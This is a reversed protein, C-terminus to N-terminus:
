AADDGQMSVGFLVLLTKLHRDWFERQLSAYHLHYIPRHYVALSSAHKTESIVSNMWNTLIGKHTSSQITCGAQELLMISQYMPIIVARDTFTLGAYVCAASDLRDQIVDLISNTFTDDFLGSALHTLYPTPARLDVMGNPALQLALLHLSSQFLKKRDKEGLFFDTWFPYTMLREAIANARSPYVHLIEASTLPTHCQLIIFRSARESATMEPLKNIPFHYDLFTANADDSLREFGKNPEVSGFRSLPQMRKKKLNTWTKFGGDYFELITQLRNHGDLLEWCSKGGELYKYGECLGIGLGSLITDILQQKQRLTWCGERQYTPQLNFRERQECLERISVPVILSDTQRTVPRPILEQQVAKRKNQM